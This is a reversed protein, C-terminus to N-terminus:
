STRAGQPRDGRRAPAPEAAPRAPRVGRERVGDHAPVARLAPLRLRRRPGARETGTADEGELLVTGSDATELGAIIRLLTTKGSGSPGLLAVLEGTAVSFSVDKVATFSGYAKTVHRVDIAMRRVGRARDDVVCAARRATRRHDEAGAHRAGALGAAVGRRVGGPLHVRQLSDRRPAAAHEDPRPDQGVRGLRRRVRGDRARQLPDRRLAAGVQHEAADRASSDPLREAGLVRAAEEEETGSAEMVPIIERAVFPFSVFITALVIGPVAFVVKCGHDVLWPGLWGQRGFLLVFVMGSIVPSVAFPLDILHDLLNKGPFDFKAIAWGACVGFVLNLPVRHRGRAADAEAGRRM